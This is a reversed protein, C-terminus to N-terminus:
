RIGASQRGDRCLAAILHAYRNAGEELWRAGKDPSAATADGIVGSVSLDRTMWAYTAPAKEPRLAGPEGIRAPYECAAAARDVRDGAAALMWSTEVEGAHFGYAAEQAPVGFDLQLRLRSTRIGVAERIERLAYDVVPSNGGHTNLVALQRFGWDRVQRAIVFLLGRLTDRSVSLTGPFGAHENSKGVSIAPAVYASADAPLRALALALWVEGMFADVALPLHRGHQEISGTAVIVPAWAKDPLAAIRDPTMAPLYRDRYAPFSAGNM